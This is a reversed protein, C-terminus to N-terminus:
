IRPTSYGYHTKSMPASSTLEALRRVAAQETDKKEVKSWRDPGIVWLRGSFLGSEPDNCCLHVRLLERYGM